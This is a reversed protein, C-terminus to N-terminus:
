RNMKGPRKKAIVKSQKNKRMGARVRDLMNGKKQL